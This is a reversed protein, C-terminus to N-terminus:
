ESPPLPRTILFVAVATFIVAQLVLVWLSLQLYIGGILAGSMFVIAIIKASIPVAGHDNWSKIVPGLHAHNILWKHMAPSGRDFCFAALLLFPTTPLLPFIVGVVGLGVFVVGSLKWWFRKM